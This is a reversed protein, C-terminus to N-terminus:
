AKQPLAQLVAQVLDKLSAVQCDRLKTLASDVALAAKARIGEEGYAAALRAWYDEL